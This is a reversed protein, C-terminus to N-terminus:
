LFSTSLPDNALVIVIRLLSKCYFEVSIRPLRVIRSLSLFVFDGSGLSLLNSLVRASWLLAFFRRFAMFSSIAEFVLLSIEGCFFLFIIDFEYSCVSEAVLAFDAIFAFFLGCFAIIIAMFSFSYCHTLSIGAGPGLSFVRPVPGRRFRLRLISFNDSALLFGAKRVM